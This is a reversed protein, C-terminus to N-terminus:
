EKSFWDYVVQEEGSQWHAPCITDMWDLPQACPQPQAARQYAAALARKQEIGLAQPDASVFLPTGSRALLDLWDQNHQWAIDKTLGVCDADAFFFTGHQGMRFALTNVGMKRTREWEKGSTDDGTRQLEFLGAGLHGITNCGILITDEGAAERLTQYFYRIIEASTKTRDSFTWDSSTVDAGMEFGWRGLLDVTTFDHKILDFGWDKLRRMDQAIQALNEPLSPDLMPLHAYVARAPPKLCLAPPTDIPAILPRVWIGPHVGLTKLETALRPLDPFRNNGRTRDGSDLDNESRLGVQWGADIVVYPRNRPDPSLDATIRGDELISAQTSSGYRYYWDNSGYVPQAPLRPHDCLRACLARAAAFPTLEDRVPLVRVSAAALRRGGPIVGLGGCRVDLVLRVGSSHVQWYALAAGGTRVGFGGTSHGDSVVVYWPMVREPVIGRWELDGYGREWADGLFRWGPSIAFDWSLYIRQVPTNVAEISITLEDPDHDFLVQIDQAQWTEVGAPMLKWYGTDTEVSVRAPPGLLHAEFM